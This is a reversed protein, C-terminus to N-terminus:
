YEDSAKEASKLNTTMTVCGLSLMITCGHYTNVNDQM